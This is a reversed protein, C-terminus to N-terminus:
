EEDEWLTLNEEQEMKKDVMTLLGIELTKVIVEISSSVNLKQFINAKHDKITLISADLELAM